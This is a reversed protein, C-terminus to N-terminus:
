NLASYLSCYKQSMQSVPFKNYFRQEAKSGMEASLSNSHIIQNIAAAFPQENQNETVFGNVSNKIIEANGGADTVVCPKGLSMAELLTMSTGESLSSLLFIDMAAQLDAPNPQYGTLVVRHGIGLSAIKAEINQREDGDGVMVLWTDPFEKLVLAFADLMMAHNKIPDFRAITGLVKADKPIGLAEKTEPVKSMDVELPKIGNYIVEIKDRPIYEFEVLAEKTAKSIATVQNTFKMLLPNVLKRKWSSSDPYFRGHETFIVKAKTFAAALAGYVWPTYQHCHVVDIQNELIHKRITKVLSTDFGPQREHTTIAIGSEQLEKGWPGLPAEICFISMDFESPDTGEIINKIVMETGGIRMDYTIHLVKSRPM